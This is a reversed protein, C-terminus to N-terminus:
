PTILEIKNRGIALKGDKELKKLLRSIVERSSNLETAIENHTTTVTKTGQTRSKEKLLSVVRDDLKQFAIGDITKLLEEFRRQYSMLIFNKWSRFTNTWEDMFRVPVALLTTDEEAVARVTSRAEGTCCTLSMACTEGPQIYYLLLENGNQDERLIKILGTLVLPMSKIYSGIDMLVEGTKLEVLRSDRIIRDRAESEYIDPFLDKLMEETNM